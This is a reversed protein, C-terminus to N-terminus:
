KEIFKKKITNIWSPLGEVKRVHVYKALLKRTETDCKVRGSLNKILIACIKRGREDWDTLIIIERYRASISDGFDTLSKGANITIIEGTIGLSQLAIKDKIGEVIIPAEKNKERLEELIKEIQALHEKYTGEISM